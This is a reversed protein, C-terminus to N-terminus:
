IEFIIDKWFIIKFDFGVLVIMNSKLYVVLIWLRDEYNDFICEIEGMNIDWIKVFSDVGVFVFYVNKRSFDEEVIFIYLWVVKLVNYFYGEFICFCM